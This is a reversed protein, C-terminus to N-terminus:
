PWTWEDVEPKGVGAPEAFVSLTISSAGASLVLIVDNSRRM